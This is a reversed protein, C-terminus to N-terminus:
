ICWLSRDLAKSHNNESSLISKGCITVHTFLDKVEEWDLPTVTRSSVQKLWERFNEKMREM